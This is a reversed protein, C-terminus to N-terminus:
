PSYGTGNAHYIDSLIFATLIASVACQFPIPRDSILPMELWSDPEQSLADLSQFDLDPQILIPTELRDIVKFMSNNYIHVSVCVERNESPDNVEWTATLRYSIEPGDPFTNARSSSEVIRQSSFSSPLDEGKQYGRPLEFSFPAKLVPTSLSM